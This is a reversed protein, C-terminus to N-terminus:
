AEEDSDEDDESSEDDDDDQQRPTGYVPHRALAERVQRIADERSTGNDMLRKIAAAAYQQLQLSEQGSSSTRQVRQESGSSAFSPAYSQVATSAAGVGATGQVGHVSCFQRLLHSLSEEIVQGFARAPIKHDITYASGYDIRSMPDLQTAKDSPLCRVAHPLMGAEGRAPAELSRVRPVSQGTYIIGHHSKRVGPTAIGHGGYSVVPVATCYQSGEHVVVFSRQKPAAASQSKMVPAEISDVAPDAWPIIFVKGKKFFVSPQREFGRVSISKPSPSLMQYARMGRSFLTRDTITEVPGTRVLVGFGTSPDTLQMEHRERTQVVVAELPKLATCPLKGTVPPGSSTVPTLYIEHTPQAPLFWYCPDKTPRLARIKELLAQVTFLSGFSRRATYVAKHAAEAYCCDLILLTDKEGPFLINDQIDNWEIIPSGSSTPTWKLRRLVDQEDCRGHGSYVVILLENNDTSQSKCDRLRQTLEETCDKTPIAYLESSSGFTRSLFAELDTIESKCDHDEAEWYVLLVRTKTYPRRRGAAPSQTATPRYPVGPARTQVAQPRGSVNSPTPAYSIAQSSAVTQSQARSAAQNRFPLQTAARSSPYAM